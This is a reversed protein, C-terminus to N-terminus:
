RKSHRQSLEREATCPNHQIERAKSWKKTSLTCQVCFIIINHKNYNDEVLQTRLLM